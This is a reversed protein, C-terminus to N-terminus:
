DIGLRWKRCTCGRWINDCSYACKFSDKNRILIETAVRFGFTDQDEFFVNEGTFTWIPLHLFRFYLTTADSRVLSRPPIVWIIRLQANQSTVWGQSVINQPEDSTRNASAAACHQQSHAGQTCRDLWVLKDIIFLHIVLVPFYFLSIIITSM